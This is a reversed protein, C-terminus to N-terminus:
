RREKERHRWSATFTSIFRGHDPEEVNEDRM